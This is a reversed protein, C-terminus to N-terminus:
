RANWWDAFDDSFLWILKGLMFLAFSVAVGMLIIMISKPGFVSALVILTVVITLIITTLVLFGQFQTM